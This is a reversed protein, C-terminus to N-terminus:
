RGKSDGIIRHPASMFMFRINEDIADKVEHENAPVEDKDRRYVITVDAGLRVCSRAADIAVNGAGIVVVKQGIQRKEGAGLHELFEYGQLVGVLGKGEIDL